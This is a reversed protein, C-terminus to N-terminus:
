SPVSKLPLCDDSYLPISSPASSHVGTAELTSMGVGGRARAVHYAIL